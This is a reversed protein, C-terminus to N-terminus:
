TTNANFRSSNKPRAPHSRFSVHHGTFRHESTATGAHFHCSACATKGDSGAQLEWFLSKGLIVLAAQDNVYGAVNTPQPVPVQSLSVLAPGGRQAFCVVAFPLLLVSVNRYSFFLRRADVTSTYLLDFVRGQKMAM